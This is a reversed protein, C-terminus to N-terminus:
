NALSFSESSVIPPVSLMNQIESQKTIIELLSVINPHKLVKLLQIERLATIPFGDKENEFKIKKIARYRTTWDHAFSKQQSKTDIECRFVKGYTGEGILDFSKFDEM